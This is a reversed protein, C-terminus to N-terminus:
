TSSPSLRCLIMSGIIAPKIGVLSSLKAWIIIFGTFACLYATIMWSSQDFGQLDNSITVLSTSVISIEATPLFLTVGLGLIALLKRFGTLYRGEQYKTTPSDAELTEDRLSVIGQDKVKNINSNQDSM